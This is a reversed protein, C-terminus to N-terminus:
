AQIRSIEPTSEQTPPPAGTLPHPHEASHQRDGTQDPDHAPGHHHAEHHHHGATSYAGAEPLFPAVQRSLTLGRQRLMQELVPDELLRLEDPRVELAVHRNGLHYAAQLLTLPESATVVLLDEPAAQM